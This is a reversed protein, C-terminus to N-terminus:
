PDATKSKTDFCRTKGTGAIMLAQLFFGTDVATLKNAGSGPADDYVSQYCAELETM